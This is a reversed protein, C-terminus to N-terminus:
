EEGAAAEPAQRARALAERVRPLCPDLRQARELSLIARGAMGRELCLLGVERHAPASNPRTMVALAARRMTDRRRLSERYRAMLPGVRDTMGLDRYVQALEFAVSGQQPRERELRELVARAETTEGGLRLCRGLLLRASPMEPRLALARQLASNAAARGGADGRRLSLRALAVWLEPDGERPAISELLQTAEAVHGEAEAVAALQRVVEADDPDRGYAEALAVRAGHLDGEQRAMTARVLAIRGPEAGEMEAQRLAARAEPLWGLLSFLTAREAQVNGAWPARGGAASAARDLAALARDERGLARQAAALLLLLRPDTTTGEGAELVAVAGGPGTEAWRLQALELRAEVDGPRSRVAAALAQRRAARQEHARRAAEVAAVVQRSQASEELLRQRWAGTAVYAGSAVLLGGLLLLLRPARRKV